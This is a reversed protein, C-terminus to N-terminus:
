FFFNLKFFMERFREKNSNNNNNNNIIIIITNNNWQCEDLMKKIEKHQIEKKKQSSNQCIWLFWTSWFILKHYINDICLAKRGM